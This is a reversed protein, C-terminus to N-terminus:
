QMYIEIMESLEREVSDELLLTQHRELIDHKEGWTDAEIFARLAKLAAEADPEFVGEAHFFLDQVREWASESGAGQLMRLAALHVELDHKRNKDKLDDSNLLDFIM